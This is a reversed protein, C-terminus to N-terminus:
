AAFFLGGIPNQRGRNCVHSVVLLSIKYVVPIINPGILEPLLRKLALNLFATGSDMTPHINLKTTENDISFKNTM